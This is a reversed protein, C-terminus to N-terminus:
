TMAKNAKETNLPHVLVSFKDFKAPMKLAGKNRIFKPKSAVRLTRPKFFRLKTRIKYKRKIIKKKATKATKSTQKIQQAKSAM